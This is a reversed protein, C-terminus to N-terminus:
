GLPLLFLATIQEAQFRSHPATCLVDNDEPLLSRPMVRVSTRGALLIRNHYLVHDDPQSHWRFPRLEFCQLPTRRKRIRAVTPNQERMRVRDLQWHLLNGRPIYEYCLQPIRHNTESRQSDVCTLLLCILLLCILLDFEISHEDLWPHLTPADTFQQELMTDLCRSATFTTGQLDDRIRM